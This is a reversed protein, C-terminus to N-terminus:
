GDAKIGDRRSPIPRDECDFRKPAVARLSVKHPKEARRLL